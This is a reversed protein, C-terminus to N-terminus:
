LRIREEEDITAGVHNERVKYRLDGDRIAVACGDHSRQRQYPAAARLTADLALDHQKPSPTQTFSVCRGRSTGSRTKSRRGSGQRPLRDRPLTPLVSLLRIDEGEVLREEPATGEQTYQPPPTDIEDGDCGDREELEPAASEQPTQQPQNEEERPAESDQPTENQGKHDPEQEQPTEQERPPERRRHPLVYLAAEKLDDPSISDRRAWDAAARM